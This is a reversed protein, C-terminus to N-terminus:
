GDSCNSEVGDDVGFLPKRDVVWGKGSFEPDEHFRARWFRRIPVPELEREELERVRNRMKRKEQDPCRNKARRMYELARKKTGAAWFLESLELLQSWDKQDPVVLREALKRQAGKRNRLTRRCSQCGVPVSYTNLGLEEYWFKKEGATFVFDEGCYECLRTEDWHAFFTPAYGGCDQVSPDGPLARGLNKCGSCAWYESIYRTWGSGCCRFKDLKALEDEMEALGTEEYPTFSKCLQCRMVNKM